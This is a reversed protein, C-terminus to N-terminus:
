IFDTNEDDLYIDMKSCDIGRSEMSKIADDNSGHVGLWEIEYGGRGFAADFATREGSDEIVGLYYLCWREPNPIDPEETSRVIRGRSDFVYGHITTDIVVGIAFLRRINGNNTANTDTDRGHHREVDSPVVDMIVDNNFSKNGKTTIADDAAGNGSTKYIVTSSDDERSGKANDVSVDTDEDNENM